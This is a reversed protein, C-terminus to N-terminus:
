QQFSAETALTCTSTLTRNPFFKTVVFGNENFPVEVTVTVETTNGTITEPTITLQASKAGIASLIREVEARIEETTGGPVVGQRCGEYAANDISNRLMNWRAFDFAGFFLVFVVPCVLAFEVASVGLRQKNPCRLRKPM